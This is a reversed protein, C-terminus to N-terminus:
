INETNNGELEAAGGLVGVERGRGREKGWGRERERGWGREREREGMREREGVEREREWCGRVGKEKEREREREREIQVKVYGSM